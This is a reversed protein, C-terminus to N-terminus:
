NETSGPRQIRTMGQSRESGLDHQAKGLGGAVHTSDPSSGGLRPHEVSPRRQGAPTQRAWHRPGAPDPQATGTARSPPIEKVSNKHDGMGQHKPEETRQEEQTAEALDQRTKGQASRGDNLMGYGM